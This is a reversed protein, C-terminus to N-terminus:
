VEFYYRTIENTGDHLRIYYKGEEWGRVKLTFTYTVKGYKATMYKDSIHVDDGNEKHIDQYVNTGKACDFDLKGVILTTERVIRGDSVSVHQPSSYWEKKQGTLTLLYNKFSETESNEGYINSVNQNDTISWVADQYAGHDINKGKMYQIMKKLKPNKNQAISMTNQNSPVLDNSETCFGSFRHHITEKKHLVIFNDELQILTQEEDNEPIYITGAPVLIKIDKSTNNTLKSHVSNGSYKGLSEFTATINKNNMAEFISFEQVTPAFSNSFILGLFTALFIAHISTSLITKM